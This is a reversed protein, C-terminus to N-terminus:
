WMSRRNTKVTAADKTTTDTKHEGSWTGGTKGFEAPFENRTETPDDENYILWPSASNQMTTKYPFGQTGDYQLTVKTISPVSEDRATESVLAADKENVAGPNGDTSSVHMENVFWRLDNTRKSATGNPLLTKDCARGKSDTGFCYAEYYILADGTDTEYRQRTAHTRGYIFTALTNGNGVEKGTITATSDHGAAVPQTYAASTASLNVDSSNLEFPNITENVERPFNFRLVKSLNDENWAIKRTGNADGNTGFGLLATAITTTNADGQLLHSALSSVSIPHEYYNAGTRFNTTTVNSESQAHVTVQIRASMAYTAQDANDLDSIYTFDRTANNDTVNIDKFGFHHPIFTTNTDGCIYTGNVTCAQNTDDNDIEAWKKDSVIIKVKGVNHFNIDVVDNVGGYVSIGDSMNFDSAGWNVTQDAGTIITNDKLYVESEDLTMNAKTQNYLLTNVDGTILDENNYANVTMSYDSGARLLDPMHPDTSSLEFREPRIAFDDASCKTGTFFTCMLCGLDNAFIGTGVGHSTPLCPEGTDPNSRCLDAVKQSYADIYNMEANVCQGLGELNGVGNNSMDVCGSADDSIKSTDIVIFQIKANESAIAPIRINKTDSYKNTSSPTIKFQAQEGTDDDILNYLNPFDYSPCVGTQSLDNLVPVLFWMEEGTVNAEANEFADNMYVATLSVVQGAKKTRLYKIHTGDDTTDNSDNYQTSLTSNTINTDIVDATANGDDFDELIGNGGSCNGDVGILLDYKTATGSKRDINFTLYHGTTGNASVSLNGDGSDNGNISASLSDPTLSCSAIGTVNIDHIGYDIGSGGKSWLSYTVNIDETVKFVFIDSRDAQTNGTFGHCNHGISTNIDTIQSENNDANIYAEAAACDDFAYETDTLNAAHLSLTITITILFIRLFNM